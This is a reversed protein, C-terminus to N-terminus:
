HAMVLRLDTYTLEHKQFLKRAEAILDAASCFSGTRLDDYTLARLSSREPAGLQDAFRLAPLAYSSSPDILASIVEQLGASAEMIVNELIQVSRLYDPTSDPEGYVERMDEGDETSLQQLPIVNGRRSPCGRSNVYELLRMNVVRYVFTSEAGRSPDYLHAKELVRMTAESILDELSIDQLGMPTIQTWYSVALKTIIGSHRTVDLTSSCCLPQKM